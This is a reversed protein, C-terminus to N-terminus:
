YQHWSIRIIICFPSKNAATRQCSQIIMQVFEIAQRHMSHAGDLEDGAALLTVMALTASLINSGSLERGEPFDWKPGSPVTIVHSSTWFSIIVRKHARIIVIVTSCCEAARVLGLRLSVINSVPYFRFSFVIRPTCCSRKEPSAVVGGSPRHEQLM